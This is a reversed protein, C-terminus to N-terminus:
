TTHTISLSSVWHEMPIGKMSTRRGLHSLKVNMDMPIHALNCDLMGTEELIKQAYRDQSLFIGGDSQRVEIGLYYTLRGLDSM